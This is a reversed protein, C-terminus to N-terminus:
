FFCVFCCDNQCLQLRLQASEVLARAEEMTTPQVGALEAELSELASCIVRMASLPAGLRRYQEPSSSSAHIRIPLVILLFSRSFM